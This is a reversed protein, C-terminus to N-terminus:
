QQALYLVGPKIMEALTMGAFGTSEMRMGSWTTIGYQSAPREADDVMVGLRRAYEPTCLFRRMDALVDELAPSSMGNARAFLLTQVMGISKANNWIDQVPWWVQGQLAQLLGQEGFVRWRMAELLKQRLDEERAHYCTTIFGEDYYWEDGFYLTDMVFPQRSHVLWHPARGIMRGDEQWDPLLFRMARQAVDLYRADGAAVFTMTHAAAEIATACSYVTTYFDKGWKGDTFAGSVEQYRAAWGDCFHTLAAVYRQRRAPDAYRTAIALATVTSGIDSMPQRQRLMIDDVEAPALAATPEGRFTGTWAGNPLQEGAFQDLVALVADLYRREGLIDYAALLARAPMSVTYWHPENASWADGLFGDSRRHALLWDCIRVLMCKPEDEVQVALESKAPLTTPPASRFLPQPASDAAGEVILGHVVFDQGAALILRLKLQGHESRALFSARETVSPRLLIDSVVAVGNATVTFPGHATEPEHCIFTLRYEGDPLGLWFESEEGAWIFGELLPDDVGLSASEHVPTAWLFCPNSYARGVLAYGAARRQYQNGFQIALITEM